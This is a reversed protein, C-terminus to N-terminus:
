TVKCSPYPSRRPEDCCDIRRRTRKRSPGDPKQLSTRAGCEAFSPAVSNHGPVQTLRAVALAVWAPAKLALKNVRPRDAARNKIDADIISGDLILRQLIRSTDLAAALARM